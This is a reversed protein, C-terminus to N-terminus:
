RRGKLYAALRDAAQDLVEDRKCFCFRVLHDVSADSYLASVPVLTVGAEVTLRKCFDVDGENFGFGRFDASMFYTSPCALVDFGIDALRAALRDRKRELQGALGTYWAEEHALGHAVAHQLSPATTFVLFQHGRAIVQLLDPATTVYGVKWGTMSFTKGASAIRVTRGAMGPLNLMSLHRRGDFVLHEYVEDSVAYADHRRCLDAIQGLEAESFVKGTPNMPTNFLILKTKPGFARDLRDMPLTWDPPELRVIRPVGGARRVMPLYSDYMPDFLVVEDGPEILALLTAALAETAGTTVMVQTQWDVDLGYFRADHAAVQQRLEPIGLMPPYQNPLERTARDAAQKISDPGEEDPFGQGLNVSRHERALRSMVEFVTTGFGSLVTNYSKM